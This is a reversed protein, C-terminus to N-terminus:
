GYYIVDRSTPVTRCSPCQAITQSCAYCLIAHRCPALVVAIKNVRCVGCASATTDTERLEQDILEPIPKRTSAPRRAELAGVDHRVDYLAMLESLPQACHDYLHLAIPLALGVLFLALVALGFIMGVHHEISPVGLTIAFMGAPVAYLAFADVLSKILHM